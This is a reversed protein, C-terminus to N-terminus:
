ESDGGVDAPIARHLWEEYALKLRECHGDLTRCKPLCDLHSCGGWVREIFEPAFDNRYLNGTEGMKGM